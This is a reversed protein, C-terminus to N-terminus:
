EAQEVADFLLLQSTLPSGLRVTIGQSALALGDAVRTEAANDLTV